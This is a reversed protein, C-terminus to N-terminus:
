RPKRATLLFHWDAFALRGTRELRQQLRALQPLFADVSFGDVLWGSKTLYYVVSGVDRFTKEGASDLAVEVDLGATRLASRFFGLSVYPREGTGGQTGGFHEVLDADSRGDVQQTVVVGGPRLIRCVETASFPAHKVTVVDFSDDPFPLTEWLSMGASPIVTVGLPELRKRALELSYAETVVVREPWADRVKLLQEGGATHLDLYSSASRLAGRVQEEYNWAFTPITVHGDTVLQGWDEYGAARAAERWGAVLEDPVEASDTGSGTLAALLPGVEAVSAVAQDGGPCGVGITYMGLSRATALNAAADDVLVCEAPDADLVELVQEFCAQAPKCVFGLEFIDLIGDFYEAIGLRDLVLDAHGRHANTLVVKRLPLDALVAALRPNPRLQDYLSPPYVEALYEMPDLDYEARLGALTTGYERHLRQCVEAGAADSLELRACVYRLVRYRVLDDLGLSAPYLTDDLDFLATTLM